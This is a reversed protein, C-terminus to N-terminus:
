LDLCGFVLGSTWFVFGSMWICTWVDLICIWVGLICYILMYIYIAMYLWIYIYLWIWQSVGLGAVASVIQPHRHPPITQHHIIKPPSSKYITGNTARINLSTKTGLGCNLSGQSDNQCERAGNQHGQAGWPVGSPHEPTLPPNPISKPFTERGRNPYGHQYM